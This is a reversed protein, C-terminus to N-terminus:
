FFFTCIECYWFLHCITLFFFFFFSVSYCRIPLLLLGRWATTNQWNFHWNTSWPDTELTSVLVVHVRLMLLVEYCRSLDLLLTYLPLSCRTVTSQPRFHGLRCPMPEDEKQWTWCRKQIGELPLNTFQWLVTILLPSHCPCSHQQTGPQSAFRPRWSRSGKCTQLTVPSSWNLPVGKEGTDCLSSYHQQHSQSQM